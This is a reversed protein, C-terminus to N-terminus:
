SISMITAFSAFMFIMDHSAASNKQLVRFDNYDSSFVGKKLANPLTSRVRGKGIFESFLHERIVLTVESDELIFKQLM